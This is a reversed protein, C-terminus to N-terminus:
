VAYGDDHGAPFFALGMASWWGPFAYYQEVSEAERVRFNKSAALRFSMAAAGDLGRVSESRVGASHCPEHEKM